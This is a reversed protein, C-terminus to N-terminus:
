EPARTCRQSSFAPKLKRYWYSDTGVGGAGADDDIARSPSTSRVDFIALSPVSSQSTGAPCTSSKATPSNASRRSSDARAASPSPTHLRCARTAFIDFRIEVPVDIRNRFRQARQDAFAQAVHRHIAPFRAHLVPRVVHDGLKLRAATVIRRRVQRREGAAHDVAGFDAITEQPIEAARQGVHERFIMVARHGFQQVLVADADVGFRGAHRHFHDFVRQQVFAFDFNRHAFEPYVGQMRRQLIVDVNASRGRRRVDIALLQHRGFREGAASVLARVLQLLDAIIPESLAHIAEHEVSRGM